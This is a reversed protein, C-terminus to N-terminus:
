GQGAVLMLALMIGLLAASRRKGDRSLQISPPLVLACCVTSVVVAYVGDDMRGALGGAAIAMTGSWVRAVRGLGLVKALWWQAFGFLFFTVILAVKAGNLAGWILSAVIVPPFLMSDHTDVFVPYGGRVTGNWRACLGCERAHDWMFHTQMSTFYERGQPVKLPDFDLYHRTLFFTSIALLALEAGIWAISKFRGSRIWRLVRDSWRARLYVGTGKLPESGFM